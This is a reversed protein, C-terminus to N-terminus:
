NRRSAVVTRYPNVILRRQFYKVELRGNKEIQEVYELREFGQALVVVRVKGDPLGRVAFSGDEGTYVRRTWAPAPAEGYDQKRVEGLEADAEAPVVLVSAGSVPTRQGAELLVGQLRVPGQAATEDPGATSEAGAAEPAAEPTPEGTPEPPLPAPAAIDIAVSLVVEVPRGKYLGPSYRLDGVAALALADLEPHVREVLELERPVGDVGVVLKVVVRGHPPAATRRLAEPYTIEASNQPVPQVLEAPDQMRAHAQAAPGLLAAIM